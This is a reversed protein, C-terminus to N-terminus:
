GLQQTHLGASACRASVWAEWRGREGVGTANLKRRQCVRPVLTDARIVSCDPTNRAGRPTDHSRQGSDTSLTTTHQLPQLCGWGTFFAQV